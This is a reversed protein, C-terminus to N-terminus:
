DLGIRDAVRELTARHQTVWDRAARRQLDMGAKVAVLSHGAFMGRAAYSSGPNILARAEAHLMLARDKKLLMVAAEVEIAHGFLELAEDYAIRSAASRRSWLWPLGLWRRKRWHEAIEQALVARARQARRNMRVRILSNQGNPGTAADFAWVLPYFSIKM